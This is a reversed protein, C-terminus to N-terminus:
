LNMGINLVLLQAAGITALEEASEEVIGSLEELAPSLNESTAAEYSFDSSLPAGYGIWDAGIYFSGFSWLNGLALQATVSSSSASGEMYMPSDISSLRFDYSITRYGIGPTLHFSDGLFYRYQATVLTATAEFWDTRVTEKEEVGDTFDKYGMYGSVGFAHNPGAYVMAEGGVGDLGGLVAGGRVGVSVTKGSRPGHYRKSRKRKRKKKTMYQGNDALYRKKSRSKKSTGALATDIGTLSFGLMFFIFIGFMRNM